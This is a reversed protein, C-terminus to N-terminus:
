KLKLGTSPVNDLIIFFLNPQLTFQGRDLDVGIVERRRDAQDAPSTCHGIDLRSGM